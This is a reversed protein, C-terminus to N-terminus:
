SATSRAETEVGHSVRGPVRAWVVPLLATLLLAAAGGALFPAWPAVAFLAGGAAASVAIAGTESTGFLGQARGHDTEPVSQTLLSQTAPLVLAFGVAEIGGLCLLAVLSHLFPYTCCFAISSCLSGVVLWRRDFHDALWGGPRAMVVFPVAFLTWSLGIQWSQAGRHDLLLTWCSEYVGIVLGLAGAAILAGALSRDRTLRRRPAHPADPARVATAPLRILLVPVGAALTSGAAVVFVLGM